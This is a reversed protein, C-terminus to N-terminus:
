KEKMVCSMCFYRSQTKCLLFVYMSYSFIAAHLNFEQHCSKTLKKKKLLYAKRLYAQNRHFSLMNQQTKNVKQYRLLFTHASPSPNRNYSHRTVPVTLQCYCRIFGAASSFTKNKLLFIGENPIRSVTTRRKRQAYSHRKTKNMFVDVEELKRKTSGTRFLPETHMLPVISYNLSCNKKFLLPM